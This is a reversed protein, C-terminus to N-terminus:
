INAGELRSKQIEQIRQAIVEAVKRQESTSTAFTGYVNVTINGGAGRANMQEILSAMKSEPVVWEDQGGEGAVILRGGKTDPVIGGTALYPIRPVAIHPLWGFPSVGAINIGRIGNLAGNIANFPIAVVNNIGSILGNVVNRFVNFIGEAIGGFIRGGTSFVAKVANWANSFVSGFFSAVSGFIRKIGEWAGKAGDCLGKWIGAFTDGLWKGLQGIWNGIEGFLAGAVAGFIQLAAGIFDPILGILLPILQMIGDIIAPLNEVLANILIRLIQPIYPIIAIALQIIANVVPPLVDNVFVPMMEALIPALEQILMAIGEAIVKIRPGFNKFVNVLSSVFGDVAEGWDYEESSVAVLLNKWAAKMSNISGSITSAAEKATTGTIGLNEQTKHIAEIIKDFSIDNINKATAKFSKGMVGSDNVLRAMESATGGYGLKLNDLMTYNQKAFGQYANQIMDISTGMKNANDSMDVIAKNAYEAAKATDGGLGQILRASFSTAQELYENASLGAEKYATQSYMMIENASNKFLTEVGGTLQEYDAFAKLSDKALKAVAATAAVTGAAISASIAKGATKAASGLKSFSSANTEVESRVKSLGSKLETTDVSIKYIAEGVTNGAM